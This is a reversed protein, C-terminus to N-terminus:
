IRFGFDSIRFGGSEGVVEFLEYVSTDQRDQYELEAEALATRSAISWHVPKLARYVLKKAVLSAFVELTAAEYLPDLTLYPNQYDALTLMRQMQASQQKVFKEASAQCKRRIHLPEMTRAKEGLDQVVQHEIPLGHCDWGPVYPCDFGAMTRSRVVLDKLVKNLLHGLHAAGNAYPPGDHFAYIPAGDRAQRILDYIGMANWRKISAPENQVLNAKMPFATQPLNITAKYNRKEQTSESM